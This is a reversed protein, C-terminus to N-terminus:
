ASAGKATSKPTAPHTAWETWSGDYLAPDPLGALRMGLALMAASVGSGCSVVVPRRGDIGRSEFLARLEAPPRFTKEPTLLETYPLNRSGPICGPMVGPRPEPEIGAFRGSSRADLVIEAGTELDDLLDGLGRLLRARLRPQFPLAAPHPTVPGSAVPRGERLWKPLGGDLVAAADHGFLRLLWWGRAASALGKQDYFVVRSQPGVGLATMLRAFRGASPVMHPLETDPDAVADIDFYLARPIHAAEYEARGDKGENPLYLTADFVVLDPDDLHEALWATSVLADM